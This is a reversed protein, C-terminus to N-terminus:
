AQLPTCWLSDIFSYDDIIQLLLITKRGPKLSSARDRRQLHTASAPCQMDQTLHNSLHVQFMFMQDEVDLMSVDLDSRSSFYQLFPLTVQREAIWFWGLTENKFIDVVGADGIGQSSEIGAQPMRLTSFGLAKYTDFYDFSTCFVRHAPAATWATWVSTPLNALSGWSSLEVHASNEAMTHWGDKWCRAAMIMFYKLIHNSHNRRLDPVEQRSNAVIEM